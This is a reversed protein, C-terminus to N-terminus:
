RRVVVVVQQFQSHLYHRDAWDRAMPWADSWWRPRETDFGGRHEYTKPDVLQLQWVRFGRPREGAHCAMYPSIDLLVNRRRGECFRRMM